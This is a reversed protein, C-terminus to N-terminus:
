YIEGGLGRGLGLNLKRGKLLDGRRVGEVGDWTRFKTDEREIFERGGLGRGLGLNLEETEIYEWTRFKTKEREIFGEGGEGESRFGLNLERM